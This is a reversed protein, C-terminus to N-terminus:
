QNEGEPPGAPGLAEEFQKVARWLPNRKSKGEADWRLSALAAEAVGRAMYLSVYPSSHVPATVLEGCVCVNTRGQRHAVHQESVSSTPTM